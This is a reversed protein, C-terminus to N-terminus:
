KYSVRRSSFRFESVSYCHPYHVKEIFKGMFCLMLNILTM